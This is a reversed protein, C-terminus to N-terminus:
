IISDIGIGSLRKLQGLAAILRSKAIELAASDDSEVTRVLELLEGHANDIDDHNVTISLFFATRRFDEEMTKAKEVDGISIKEANEALRNISRSCIMVNTATLIILAALIVAAVALDRLSKTKSM